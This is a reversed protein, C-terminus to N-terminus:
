SSHRGSTNLDESSLSTESRHSRVAPRWQCTSRPESLTRRGPTKNPHRVQKVSVRENSTVCVLQKSQEEVRHVFFALADTNRVVAELRQLEAIDSALLEKSKLDQCRFVTEM